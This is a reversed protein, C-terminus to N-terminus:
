SFHAFYVYLITSFPWVCFCSSVSWVVARLSLTLPRRDSWREVPLWCDTKFNRGAGFNCGAVASCSHGTRRSSYLFDLLSEVTQLSPTLAVQIRTACATQRIDRWSKGKQALITVKHLLVGVLRYINGM